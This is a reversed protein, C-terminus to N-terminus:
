KEMESRLFEGNRFLNRADWGLRSGADVNAAAVYSSEAPEREVRGKLGINPM